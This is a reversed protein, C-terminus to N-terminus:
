SSPQFNRSPLDAIRTQPPGHAVAERTAKLYGPRGDPIAFDGAVIDREAQPMGMHGNALWDALPTVTGPDQCANITAIEADSGTEVAMRVVGCATKSPWQVIDTTPFEAPVSGDFGPPILIYTRADTGNFPSGVIM